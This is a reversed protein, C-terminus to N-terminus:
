TNNKGSAASHFVAFLSFDKDATLNYHVFNFLGLALPISIYM